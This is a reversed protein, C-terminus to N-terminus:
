RTSPFPSVDKYCSDFVKEVIVEAQGQAYPNMAVSKTARRKVCDRHGGQFQFKGRWMEHLISCEGSLASARIETCAHYAVNQSDFSKVRCIDYAHVLEHIITHQFTESELNHNDCIVVHPTMNNVYSPCAISAVPKTKSSVASASSSHSIISTNSKKSPVTVAVAPEQEM